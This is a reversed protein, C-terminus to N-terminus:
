SVGGRVIVEFRDGAEVNHKEHDALQRRKGNKRVVWLALEPAVGLEEKLLSVETEGKPIEKEESKTEGTEDATILTVKVLKHPKKTADM